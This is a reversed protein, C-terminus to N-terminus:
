HVVKCQPFAERFRQLGEESVNTDTLDLHFLRKLQHLSALGEDTIATGKLFLMKLSPMQSLHRQLAADSIPTRDLSLGVLKKLDKLPALGDDTLQLDHIYLVRLEELEAIFKIGEDTVKTSPVYLNHLTTMHRVQDRMGNNTVNTNPLYLTRLNDLNRVHVLHADNYQQGNFSVTVLAPEGKDFRMSGGLENIAAISALQRQNRNAQEAHRDPESSKPRVTVITEKGRQISLRQQDLTFSNKDDGISVEYKGSPLRIARAGTVTDIIEIQKGAQRIIIEVDADNSEVVLTGQDTQVYLIGALATVAALALAILTRKGTIGRNAKGASTFESLAQAVEAASQFRQQPDKKLMCDIVEALASPVEENLTDIPEIPSEAHDKLKETVSGSPFPPRGAILFYLTAGLAYIDSRADASGADGAQEPAMYDPTGMISGAATLSSDHGSQEAAGLSLPALTALGLDLVKVTGDDALMLNHPKIDRHVMGQEHAYQLGLAAQRAYDCAEEVPLPGREHVLEALNVGCVYEMALFHLDEAREADHSAVINPHSLQAAAQVERRFREAAEPKGLFRKNIVKLAVVRNMVRHRAKYVEGMGGSGIHELIEYRPHEALAEPAAIS